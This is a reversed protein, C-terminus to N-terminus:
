HLEAGPPELLEFLCMHSRLVYKESYFFIFAIEEEQKRLHANQKGM